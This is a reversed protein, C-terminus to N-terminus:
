HVWINASEGSIQIMRDSDQELSSYADGMAQNGIKIDGYEASLDYCYDGVEKELELEVDGYATDIKCNDFLADEMRCNGSEVSIQMDAFVTRRGEINGYISDLSLSRMQTDEFRINGDETQVKMDGSLRVDHLEVDGYQSEVKCSQAQVHEMQLRGSESEAVIEQAQVESLSIDGYQANIKVHEAQVQGCSVAGSEVTLEVDKLKADKPVRLIIFEDQGERDPVLDGIVFWAVNIGNFGNRYGEQSLVLRGGQTQASLKKGGYMSYSLTYADTESPEIRLDAYGAEVSISDFPAIQEERHEYSSSGEAEYIQPAYVHLGGTDLCIGHVAGGMAAGAVALVFGLGTLAACITLFKKRRM